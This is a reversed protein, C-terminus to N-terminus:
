LALGVLEFVKEIDPHATLAELANNVNALEAELHRKKGELRERPTMVRPANAEQALTGAMNMKLIDDRMTGREGSKAAGTGYQKEQVGDYRKTRVFM